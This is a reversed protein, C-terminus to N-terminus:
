IQINLIEDLRTTYRKSLHAARLKYRKDFRQVAMRVKDKGMVANIGDMALLAKKDKERDTVDFLNVQVTHAPIVDLLLVGFKM